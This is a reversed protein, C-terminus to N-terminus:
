LRLLQEAERLLRDIRAETSEKFDVGFQPPADQPEGMASLAAQAEEESMYSDMPDGDANVIYWYPDEATPPMIHHGSSVDNLTDNNWPSLEDSLEGGDLDMDDIDENIAGEAYASVLKAEPEMIKLQKLYEELGALDDKHKMFGDEFISSEGDELENGAKIWYVTKGNEDRVDALFSGREDLNINYEYKITRKVEELEVSVAGEVTPIMAKADRLAEAYSKNLITHEDDLERDMEDLFYVQWDYTQKPDHEGRVMDSYPATKGKVGAEDMEQPAEVDASVKHCGYPCVWFHFGGNDTNSAAQAKEYIADALVDVPLRAYKTTDVADFDAAMLSNSGAAERADWEGMIELLTAHPLNHLNERVNDYAEPSHGWEWVESLLALARKLKTQDEKLQAARSTKNSLAAHSAKKSTVSRNYPREFASLRKYIRWEVPDLEIAGDENTPDFQDDHDVIWQQISSIFASRSNHDMMYKYMAKAMADTFGEPNAAHVNQLQPDQGLHDMLKEGFQAYGQKWDSALANVDEEGATSLSNVFNKANEQDGLPSWADAGQEAEIDSRAADAADSWLFDDSDFDELRLELGKKTHELAERTMHAAIRESLAELLQDKSFSKRM